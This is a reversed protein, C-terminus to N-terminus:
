NRKCANLKKQIYKENPLLSMQIRKAYHISDTIDKNKSEIIAKQEETIKNKLEIAAKQKRATRLTKLVFITFVFVLAVLAAIMILIQRRKHTEASALADKRNQEIKTIQEKKEFDYQMQAQLIKNANSENILSDRYKVFQQHDAKARKWDKRLTDLRNLASYGERIFELSKVDKSLNLGKTIYEEALAYQKLSIYVTGINIYSGALGQRDGIESRLKISAMQYKLAEQFNGMAEHILGINNYSTAVGGKDSIGERLKLAKLNNELALQYKGHSKYVLSINNYTAAIGTKNKLEEFIKLSTSYNKVALDYNKTDTYILGLNNYCASM